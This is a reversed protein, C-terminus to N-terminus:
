QLYVGICMIQLQQRDEFDSVDVMVDDQPKVFHIVQLSFAFIRFVVLRCYCVLGHM